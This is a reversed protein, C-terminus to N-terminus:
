NKCSGLQWRLYYYHYDLYISSRDAGRSAGNVIGIRGAREKERSESRRVCREKGFRTGRM